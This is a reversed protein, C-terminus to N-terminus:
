IASCVNGKIDLMMVLGEAGSGPLHTRVGSIGNRWGM